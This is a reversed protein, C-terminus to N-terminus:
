AHSVSDHKKVMRVLDRDSLRRSDAYHSAIPSYATGTDELTIVLDARKNLARLAAHSAVPVAVIIQKPKDKGIARLVARLTLGTTAGDAVVIAVKGKASTHRHIGDLLHKKRQVDREAFMVAWNLWIADLGDKEKKNYLVEGTDAVACVAYDSAYPHGIRSAAVIDFPLDLEHAVALGVPVGGRPLAYVVANSGKLHKMARALHTGADKRNIFYM